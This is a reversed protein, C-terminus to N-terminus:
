KNVRTLCLKAISVAKNSHVSQEKDKTAPRLILEHSGFQVKTGHEPWDAEGSVGVNLYRVM